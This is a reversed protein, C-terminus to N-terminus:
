IQEVTGNRYIGFGCTVKNIKFPKGSTRVVYENRGNLWDGGADEVVYWDMWSKGSFSSAYMYLSGGKPCRFSEKRAGYSVLHDADFETTTPLTGTEHGFSEVARLLMVLHERTRKAKAKENLNVFQAIAITALIGLIVVTILMETITFGTKRV